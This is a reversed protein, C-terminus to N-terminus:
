ISKLYAEMKQLRLLPAEFWKNGIDMKARVLDTEIAAKFDNYTEYGNIKKGETPIKISTFFAELRALENSWEQMTM